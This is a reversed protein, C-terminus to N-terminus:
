KQPADEEPVFVTELGELYAAHAVPLAGKVHRISGDLSLEGVFLAKEL